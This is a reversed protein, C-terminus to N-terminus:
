STCTARFTKPECRLIAFLTQSASLFALRETKCFNQINLGNAVGKHTIVNSPILFKGLQKYANARVANPANPTEIITEYMEQALDCKNQM